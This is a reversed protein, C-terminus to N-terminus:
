DGALTMGDILLSPVIRSLHTRGDNAAIIRRLMEHLNGAITCENVAHSIEGNEVWFGAAGRSYDGTTPNITSGIMSTVLLGTGMDAILDARSVSGQTLAVNGATPSPPSSLGRGANSTSPMGLKRGTALDLTWGLLVGDQVIARQGTPLGESDFPRSGAVRVRRQDEILSLGEPLVQEGIRDRLWSSGRAVSAGNSAQLLHGILTSSIREDFLVPFTGTKPKTAGVRELARLAATEGIEVASRLDAQFVRSEGDYDREMDAGTGAIAVCSLGRTSREYGASFGNSAALHLGYREYDASASQVQSIGKHTLAAAEAERADHELAAPDPEDSPDVLELSSADTDRSLQDPDALGLHPDDLSEKAMAVAREAMQALTEPRTDSASVCAQKQGVLVRLGIETGESREAQELAGARVDISVSTGSISFADAADAGAAKAADLLQHALTELSQSMSVESFQNFILYDPLAGHARHRL